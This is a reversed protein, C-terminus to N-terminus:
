GMTEFVTNCQSCFGDVNFCHVKKRRGTTFFSEIECEPRTRQFFSMVMNEFSRSKNDLHSAVRKQIPIGVRIFVTLCPNVCRTPIYSVTMLGLLLNAYTQLSEFLLVMLLQKAKLFSLHVVLLMKKFKESRDKDGESFSYFKADTSKHLCINALNPLTCGLKLM